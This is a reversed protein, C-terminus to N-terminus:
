QVTIVGVMDIPHFDCRFPYQGPSDPVQWELTATQGSRVANPASCADGASADCLGSAYNGEADAIHMNHIAAGQNVLAFTVASGATVTIERPDFFNDGMVVNIVGDSPPRDGDGDAPTPTTDSIGNAQGEGDRVNIFAAVFTVALVVLFFGIVMEAVPLKTIDLKM